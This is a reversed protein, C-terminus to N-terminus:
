RGTESPRAGGADPPPPVPDHHHVRCAALGADLEATALAGARGIAVLAAVPTPDAAADPAARPPHDIASLRVRRGALQLLAWGGGTLPLWGKLRLVSPPLAELWALLAARDFRGEPMASWHEYQAGHDAGRVGRWAAPWGGQARHRAHGLMASHLLPLPVAGHRAEVVPAPRAQLRALERQVWGRATGLADADLLDVKNLLVLDAHALGRELTDALLPDAAQALVEAADVVVLVGDLSLRADALAYQAIRWPDAVGSAEVVFAEYPPVVELLRDLAQALDDGIACCVCGNGLAVTDAGRRTVLAADIDIAGFDNVLVALRQAGHALWHRLLTSKGAGLFGGIVTFPTKQPAGSPTRRPSGAM